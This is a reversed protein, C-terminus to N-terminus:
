PPPEAQEIEHVEGPRAILLAALLAPVLAVLHQLRNSRARLVMLAFSRHDLRQQHHLSRDVTVLAHFQGDAIDLLAGDKLQEWGIDLVHVVEHGSFHQALRRPVCNDIPIRLGVM